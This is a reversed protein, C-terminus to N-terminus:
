RDYEHDCVGIVNWVDVVNTSLESQVSAQVMEKVSRPDSRRCPESEPARERFDQTQHRIDYKRMKLQFKTHRGYQEGSGDSILLDMAGYETVFKDLSDHCDSKEVIPYAAAFFDKNGYIQCYREGHISVSRMDTADTAFTGELRNVKFMRDARYRRAVLPM